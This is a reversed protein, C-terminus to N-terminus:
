LDFIKKEWDLTRFISTSLLSQKLTEFTELIEPTAQTSPSDDKLFRTLPKDIM